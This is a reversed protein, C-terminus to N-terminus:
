AAASIAVALDLYYALWGVGAKAALDNLPTSSQALSAASGFGLVQAYAAIIYLVGAALVTFLIARPIARHPSRAEIGLSSSSEFGVFAGVALVTGLAIGTASSGTARFQSTDIRAGYHVLLAILLVGIALLSIIELVVAVRTSIRVGRIPMAVTLVLFIM